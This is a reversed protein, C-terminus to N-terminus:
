DFFDVDPNIEHIEEIVDKPIYECDYFAFDDVENLSAPVNIKKLSTCEGFADAGLIEVSNPLQIEELSECEFFTFDNIQSINNPLTVKSLKKCSEFANNDIVKVTDPMVISEIDSKQFAEKHIRVVTKGDIKSPIVVNKISKDKVGIIGITDAEKEAEYLFQVVDENEKEEVPEEKLKLDAQSNSKNEVPKAKRVEVYETKEDETEEDDQETTDFDIRELPCCRFVNAGIDITKGAPLTVVTLNCCSYFANTGLTKLSSSIIIKTLSNCGEFAREGIELLGQPFDIDSISCCYAFANKEINTVGKGLVINELKKCNFFAREEIVKVSNGLVVNEISTESFAENGIAVVSEGDIEKIILDRAKKDKLAIIKVGDTVKIYDFMENEM